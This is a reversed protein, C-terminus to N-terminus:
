CAFYTDATKVKITSQFKAKGDEKHCYLFSTMM